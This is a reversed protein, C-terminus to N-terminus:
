IFLLSTDYWLCAGAGQLEELLDSPYREFDRHIIVHVKPSASLSEDIPRRSLVYIFSIEPNSIACSLVKQGVFGTAGTIVVKM